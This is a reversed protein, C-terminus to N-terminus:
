KVNDNDQVSKNSDVKNYLWFNARIQLGSGGKMLLRWRIVASRVPVM